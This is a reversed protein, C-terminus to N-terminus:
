GGANTANSSAPVSSTRVAIGAGRPALGISRHLAERHKSVHDSPGARTVAAISPTANLGATRWSGEFSLPARTNQSRDGSPVSIAMAVAGLEDVSINTSRPLERTRRTVLSVQPRTSPM